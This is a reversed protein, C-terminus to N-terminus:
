EIKELYDKLQKHTKYLLYIDLGLIIIDVVLLLGYDDYFIHRVIFVLMLIALMAITLFGYTITLVNDRQQKKM